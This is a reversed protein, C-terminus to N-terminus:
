KADISNVVEEALMVILISMISTKLKNTKKEVIIIMSLSLSKLTM